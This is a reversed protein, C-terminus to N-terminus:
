TRLFPGVICVLRLQSHRLLFLLLLFCLPPLFSCAGTPVADAADTEVDRMMEALLGGSAMLAKYHGREMIYGDKLVVVQDAESVYQLQNTVLVRTASRLEDKLCANFVSRGVSADLASLPDDLLVVDPSAYVARAIQIRQKQGGSVNIGQLSGLSNRESVLERQRGVLSKNVRVCAADCPACTLDHLLLVWPHLRLETQRGELLMQKLDSLQNVAMLQAVPCM